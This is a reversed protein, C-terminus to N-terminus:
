ENENSESINNNINEPKEQTSHINTKQKKKRFGFLGAIGLVILKWFKLIVAFFGAKALVKGAVLGGITWKAVEDIDPDFDAYRFGDKFTISNLVKDVNKNVEDLTNIDSVANFMFVGKRGLMRLNYNLTPTEEDGFQLKKAWHLVKKQKDYYPKEAWGLFYIPEYGAKIREKNNEEMDKKIDQELEDYDIDDADDDKVYGLDEYTIIFAWTNNDLVGKNEPFLMGLVDEAQEPMNGWYDILVKESQKKDLYKFGSPVEIYANGDSLEIKGKQFQMTNELSDIIIQMQKETLEKENQSFGLNIALLFIFIFTQKM